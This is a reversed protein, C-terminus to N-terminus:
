SSLRQFFAEYIAQSVSAKGDSFLSGRSSPTLLRTRSFLTSAMVALLLFSSPQLGDSNILNRLYATERRNRKQNRLTKSRKNGKLCIAEVHKWQLEPKQVSGRIRTKSDVKRIKVTKTKSLCKVGAEMLEHTLQLGNQM